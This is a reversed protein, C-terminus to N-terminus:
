VRFSHVDIPVIQHVVLFNQKEIFNKADKETAFVFSRNDNQDTIGIVQFVRGKKKMKKNVQELNM